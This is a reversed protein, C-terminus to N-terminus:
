DDKEEIALIDEDAVALFDKGKYNIINGAGLKFYIIKDKLDFEREEEYFNEEDNPTSVVVGKNLEFNDLRVIVYGYSAKLSM